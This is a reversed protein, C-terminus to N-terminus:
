KILPETGKLYYFLYNNKNNIEGTIGNLPLAVVNLPTNYWSKDIAVKEMVEVWINKTIKSDAVKIEEANDKGNWVIVLRTPNYGVVWFDTNTSGSKIAYKGSVRSSIYAMTPTNYDYFSSNYTTTLLENIIYTYNQNLALYTEEKKEYIINGQNDTIKRIFFLDNKYGNGALTNYANAFDLMSIENSGLALSPNTNLPTKLGMKKSTNVLVEEGLFLHTKVAYINDSYSIAAAMTIDKNAYKDNYNSPAYTKNNSFVFTTPESKFTSSATLGNELAAYYLLPKMTSGVQRKAMSARNYQSINYNKGGTLAMVAGTQPNTILAAVQMDDNNMNTNIADEISKQSEKNYTTYVKLGSNIILDDSLGLVKLEDKVCDQYYMVTNSLTEDPYNKIEINSFNLKQYTENDIKNNDVMAKAVINARKISKEYNSIPNYKNPSKPIGALILAEELSLDSAKKGFYYQSAMEVGYNGQGYNITNLYGELIEDKSYHTELEITLYAEEIKRKWTKGFDLYLNKIYQQSITSAGQSLNDNILNVYLAKFIRLIDFGKHNYFSKDEVSIVANLLHPSIEKLSIWTESGSGQVILEDNDDYYYISSNTKLFEKPTIYAYLYLGVIFTVGIIVIFVNIKLLWKIKM